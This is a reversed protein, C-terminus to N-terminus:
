VSANLFQFNEIPVDYGCEELTEQKVIEAPNLHPKDIIGACCELTIGTSAPYKSYDIELPASNISVHEDVKPNKVEQPINGYYM